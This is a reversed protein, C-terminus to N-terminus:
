GKMQQIDSKLQTLHEEAQRVVEWALALLRDKEEATEAQAVAERIEQFRSDLDQVVEIWILAASCKKSTHYAPVAM